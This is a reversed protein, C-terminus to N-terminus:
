PGCDGRDGYVVPTCIGYKNCASVGVQPFPNWINMGDVQPNKHFNIGYEFDFTNGSTEGMFQADENSDPFHNLYIRFKGTPQSKSQWTVRHKNDSADCYYHTVAHPPQLDDFATVCYNGGMSHGWVRSSNSSSNTAYECQKACTMKLPDRKEFAMMYSRNLETKSIPYIESTFIKGKPACIFESVEYSNRIGELGSPNFFKKYYLVLGSDLPLPDEDEVKAEPQKRKFMGIMSTPSDKDASKKNSANSNGKQSTSTTGVQSGPKGSSGPSSNKGANSGGQQSTSQPQPKGSSGRSPKGFMGLMDIVTFTDVFEMFVDALQNADVAHHYTGGTQTAIQRLDQAAQSNPTIGFGVTEHRFIIGSSKLDAMAQAINGCDNQGDALLMIMRTSASSYGNKKMYHNAFLLADAMPTGGGPQLSSIFSTLQNVDRTFDQHRPVPIQCDGSFALVAVEVSGSQAARSLATIAAQKAAEIKVQSNGHGIQEKMSGSADILLLLSSNVHGHGHGSGSCSSLVQSDWSIVALGLAVKIMARTIRNMTFGM